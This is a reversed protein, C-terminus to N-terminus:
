AAPSHREIRRHRRRRALIIARGPDGTRREMQTYGEALSLISVLVGIAAGMGAVIALSPWLRSPLNRLNLGTVALTQRLSMMDAGEAARRRHGAAADALGAHRRQCLGCCGCVWCAIALVGPSLTPPAVGMKQLVALAAIKAALVMAIAFGALAGLLCPIAAEVFVLVM